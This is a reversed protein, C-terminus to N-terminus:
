APAQGDSEGGKGRESDSPQFTANQAVGETEASVEAIWADLDAREREREAKTFVDVALRSSAGRNALTRAIAELAKASLYHPDQGVRTFGFWGHLAEEFQREIKGRYDAYEYRVTVRADPPLDASSNLFLCHRTGPLLTSFSLVCEPPADLQKRPRRLGSGSITVRVNRAAAQGTNAIVLNFLVVHQPHPEVAVDVNAELRAERTQRTEDALIKTVAALRYTFWVLALSALATIIASYETLFEM